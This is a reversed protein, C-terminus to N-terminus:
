PTGCARAKPKRLAGSFFYFFDFTGKVLINHNVHLETDAGSELMRGKKYLADHDEECIDVFARSVITAATMM